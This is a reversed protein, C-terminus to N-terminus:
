RGNQIVEDKVKEKKDDKSAWKALFYGIVAGGFIYMINESM